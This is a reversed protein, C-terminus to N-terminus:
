EQTCNEFRFQATLACSTQSTASAAKPCVVEGWVRGGAVGQSPTTYRVTCGAEEYTNSNARSSVLAHAGTQDGTSRFKGDVRFLGGSAGSLEVSGSVQFEGASSPVVSCSVSVVGEGFSDGHKIATRPVSPEAADGYSGVSFLPGASACNDNTGRELRGEFIAQPLAHAANSAEDSSTGGTCAVGAIVGLVFLCGTCVRAVIM